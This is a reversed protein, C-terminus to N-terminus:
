DISTRDTGQCSGYGTQGGRLGRRIQGLHDTALRTRRGEPSPGLSLVRRSGGPQHAADQPVSARFEVPGSSTAERLRGPHPQRRLRSRRRYDGGAARQLDRYADAQAAVFHPLFRAVTVDDAALNEEVLFDRAAEDLLQEREPDDDSLAALATIWRLPRGPEDSKADFIRRYAVGAVAVLDRHMPVSSRAEIGPAAKSCAKAGAAMRKWEADLEASVRGIRENAARKDVTGLSRWVETKGVAPRLKLPVKKRIWWVNQRRGNARKPRIPTPM